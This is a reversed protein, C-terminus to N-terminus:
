RTSPMRMGSACKLDAYPLGKETTTGEKHYNCNWNANFNQVCTSLIEIPVGAEHLHLTLGKLEAEAGGPIDFGFWPIVFGIKKM